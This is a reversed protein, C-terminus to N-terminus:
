SRLFPFESARGVARRTVVKDLLPPRRKSGPKRRKTRADPRAARTSAGPHRGGGSGRSRPPDAAQCGRALPAIGRRRAGTKHGHLEAPADTRPGCRRLRVDAALMAAGSRCMMLAGIAPPASRHLRDHRSPEASGACRTANSLSTHRM